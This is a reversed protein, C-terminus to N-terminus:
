DERTQKSGRGARYLEILRLREQYLDETLGVPYTHPKMRRRVTPDLAALQAQVRQRISALTPRAGVAKGRRVVPVLLDERALEPGLVRRRTPDLPDVITTPESLGTREDYIADAVWKGDRAYRRVQLVGPNTTKASHESVKIRPEAPRGARTVMGLKYV